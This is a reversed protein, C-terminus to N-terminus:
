MIICEKEELKQGQIGMDAFTNYRAKSQNSQSPPIAESLSTQKGTVDGDKPRLPSGTRSPGPDILSYRPKASDIVLSTSTFSPSSVRRLDELLPSQFKETTGLPSTENLATQQAPLLQQASSRREKPSRKRNKPQM